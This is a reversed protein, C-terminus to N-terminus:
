TQKFKVWKIISDLDLRLSLNNVLCVFMFLIKKNKNKKILLSSNM